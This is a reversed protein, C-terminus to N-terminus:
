KGGESMSRAVSVSQAAGAPNLFWELLLFILSTWVLYPWLSFGSAPTKQGKEASVMKLERSEALNSERADDFNVARLQENQGEGLRYIGQYFTDTFRTSGEDTEVRVGEPGRLTARPHGPLRLPEGTLTTFAGNGGFFWNLVNLTFVSMPLNSRGLYPFPDFGLVLYRFGNRKIVVAM